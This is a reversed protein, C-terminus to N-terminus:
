AKNIKKIVPIAYEGTAFPDGPGNSLFIGDPKLSLIDEFSSKANVVTPKLNLNVLNRLINQKIGFDFCAISYKNLKKYILSKCEM